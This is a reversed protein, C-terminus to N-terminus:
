GQHPPQGGMRVKRFGPARVSALLLRVFRWLLLLAVIVMFTSLLFPRVHGVDLPHAPHLLDKLLAFVVSPYGLVGQWLRPLVAWLVYGWVGYSLLMYLVLLGTVFPSWPLPQVYQGRLRDCLHRVLRFPQQSLNTVGLADAVVWYGDCKFIPNLSFVCSGAIMVLAAKLPEWGSLAYAIAYGAGVVLQFYMGGLDVIVRQWRKLAWIASVDSYFAPFLLYITFGIERPRTGYRACASAHGLEHLLLSGLFLVYGWVFGVPPMHFTLTDRPVLATALVMGALLCYAVPKRFALSLWSTLRVVLSEPLLTWCLLFEAGISSGHQAIHTIRKVVTDYAREVEAPSVSQGTQSMIMALSEFSVDLSRQQLLYYASPSLRLYTRQNGVALLYVPHGESTDVVLREQLGQLEPLM